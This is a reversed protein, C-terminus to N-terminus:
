PIERRLALCESASGNLDYFLKGTQDTCFARIGTGGPRIPIAFIQYRTVTGNAEPTCGAFGFKYGSRQGSQVESIQDSADTGSEQPRLLGLECTFGKDPHSVAYQNELSNIKALSGVADAEYKALTSSRLLWRDNNFFRM